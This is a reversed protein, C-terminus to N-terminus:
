MNNSVPAIYYMDDEDIHSMVPISSSRTSRTCIQRKETKDSQNMAGSARADRAASQLSKRLQRENRMLDAYDFQCAWNEEDMWTTEGDESEVEMARRCTPCSPATESKVVWKYICKSHFVEACGPCQLWDFNPIVSLKCDCITCTHFTIDGHTRFHKTRLFLQKTKGPLAM